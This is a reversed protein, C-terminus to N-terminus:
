PEENFLSEAFKPWLDPLAFQLLPGLAHSPRRKRIGVRTGGVSAFYASVLWLKPLCLGVRLEGVVVESTLMVFIEHGTPPKVGESPPASDPRPPSESTRRWLSEPARALTRPEALPDLHWPPRDCLPLEPPEPPAASDSLESGDLSRFASSLVLGLPRRRRCLPRCTLVSVRGSRRMAACADVCGRSPDDPM